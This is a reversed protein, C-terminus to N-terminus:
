MGWVKTGRFLRPRSECVILWSVQEWAGHEIQASHEYAQEYWVNEQANEEGEFWDPSTQQSTQWCGEQDESVAKKKEPSPSKKGFPGKEKISTLLKKSSAYDKKKPVSTRNLAEEHHDRSVTINVWHLTAGALAWRGLPTEWCWSRPAAAAELHSTARLTRPRPPRARATHVTAQATKLLFPLNHLETTPPLPPAPGQHRRSSPWWSGQAGCRSPPHPIKHQCVPAVKTARLFVSPPPQGGQSAQAGLPM